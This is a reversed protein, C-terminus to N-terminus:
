TFFLDGEYFRQQLGTVSLRDSQTWKFYQAILAQRSFIACVPTLGYVDGSLCASITTLRMSKAM